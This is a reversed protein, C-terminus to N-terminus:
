VFFENRKAIKCVPELKKTIAAIFESNPIRANEPCVGVCRMCCICRNQDVVAPDELDIARAPCKAQCIGCRVCNENVTQPLPFHPWPKEPLNGPVSFPAGPNHAAALEAMKRGFEAVETLDQEDPRGQAYTQAITHRAICACAGISKFGALGALSALEALADDFARNGYSVLLIARAGNGHLSSIKEAFLTPIRGAYVPAGLIAMDEGRIGLGNGNADFDTLDHEHLASAPLNKHVSEGLVRCLERTHYLPSFWINFIKTM